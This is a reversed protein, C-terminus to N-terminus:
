AGSEGRYVARHITPISFFGFSTSNKSRKTYIFYRELRKDRERMYSVLRRLWELQSCNIIIAYRVMSGQKVFVEELGDSRDEDVVRSDARTVSSVDVGRPNSVDKM